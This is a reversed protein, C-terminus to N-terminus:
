DTEASPLNSADIKREYYICKRRKLFFRQDKDKLHGKTSTQIEFKMEKYWETGGLQTIAYRLM